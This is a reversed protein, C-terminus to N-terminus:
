LIANCVREALKKGGWVPLNIVTDAYQSAEPFEEVSHKGYAEMLPICYEIIWGLQVNRDIGKRLWKDRNKVGVAFHSYTAGDDKPPLKLDPRGELADFYYNAGEIRNRVIDEYRSLNVIGVRAELATIAELYDPPMDIKFEDYYKVFQDILGSREMRNIIGYIKESFAAYVALFYILRRMSKKWNSPSTFHDRFYKLKNYLTEDDTTIMGGFISTMLKSINLGFLAATGERQVQRGKWEAAFSHACDQIIQVHPHQDRIMDLKDLNVPYGFVSTAIMAGTKSTIIEGAKDLNMNFSQPECDVFVPTNGSYVIAHPVVVCTYAPCIVEKGEIALAKLLTMLGTRGYPFVVAYRQDMLQAFATEYRRFDDDKSFQLAARIEKLGLTPKLRPIM